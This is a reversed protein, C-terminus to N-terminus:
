VVCNALASTDGHLQSHFLGRECSTTGFGAFYRYQWVRIVFLHNCETPLLTQLVRETLIAEASDSIESTRMITLEKPDLATLGVRRTVAFTRQLFYSKPNTSFELALKVNRLDGLSNLAPKTLM